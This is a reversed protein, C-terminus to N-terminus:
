RRAADAGDCRANPLGLAIAACESPKLPVTLAAPLPTATPVSATAAMSATPATPAVTAVPATARAGDVNIIKPTILFLRESRQKSGEENRFLAGILPIRSLGPLGTRGTTDTEVSIGGILLSEGERLTAETRIETRKIIPVQDVGAAEFNGDEIFLTLKVERRDAYAIIQPQVQLTTGAEITFLNADLNGAVKVSAIRKDTMSATRNASGLVKPRAVIRAKNKGELARIRALLQRGAGAVLTNINAGALPTADPAVAISGRGNRTFDWEVGLAEFEETSVDIITAEIEVLDQAVDLTRVLTEYQKMRAPAANIIIANTAEDAQFFPREEGGGSGGGLSKGARDKDDSKPGTKTEGRRTAAADAGPSKFGYTMEASRRKDASGVVSNVSDRASNITDNGTSHSAAAASFVNNLTTALGPLHSAGSVRDAAVAYKLPVVVITNGGGEKAGQELTDIVNAVLEIHRPPGYAFVSQDAENYRLPFRADGLGFSNLMDRVQSRDFGRLRFVRNQMAGSPYVFLTVGDFYWIVGYTKSMANLFSDASANFSASVNGDVGADVVVPVSQSAAFDQFVETLKKGDARYIFKKDAWASRSVAGAAAGAAAAAGLPAAAATTSALAAATILTVLFRM